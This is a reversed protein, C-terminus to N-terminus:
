NKYYEKSKKNYIISAKLALLKIFNNDNVYTNLYHLACKNCLINPVASRNKLDTKIRQRM